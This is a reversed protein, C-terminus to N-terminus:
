IHKNNTALLNYKYKIADAWLFFFNRSFITFAMRSPSLGLRSIASLPGSHALNNLFYLTYGLSSLTSLFYIFSGTSDDSPYLSPSLCQSSLQGLGTPGSINTLKELRILTIKLLTAHGMTREKLPWLLQQCM